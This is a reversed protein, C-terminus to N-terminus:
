KPHPHKSLRHRLCALNVFPPQLVALATKVVLLALNLALLLHLPQMRAIDPYPILTSAVALAARAPFSPRLGDEHTTKTPAELHRDEGTKTEIWPM